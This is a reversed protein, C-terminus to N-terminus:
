KKRKANRDEPEEAQEDDYEFLVIRDGIPLASLQISVGPRNDKTTFKWASGIRTLYDKQGERKQSSYAKFDPSRGESM